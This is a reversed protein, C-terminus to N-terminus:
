AEDKKEGIPLQIHVRTGNNIESEIYLQGGHIKVIEDCISLGIGNKSKSNKGKYFKEKVKPLDEECIGCGNDEILIHVYSKEKKATLKVLGNEDVFKFANDLINILVQKIKNKDVNVIALPKEYEVLFEINKRYAISSMHTKIYEIIQEMHINERKITVQGSLLKSFDLLEEVMETLRESEKEIIHLGEKISEEDKVIGNNLLVAWGKIGTLPTRIEHSVSSIFDNKLREKKLIEGAMYNLTNSLKGIEDNYFIKARTEFDGESMKEASKTLEKIPEIITNSLFLSVIAGIVMVLVGIGIFIFSINKIILDVWKLSTVFRLVGVIENGSKLPHSIAMVKNSDYHVSGIYKGIEGSLAKEFDASNMSQNYAVGISDMLVKGKSDIIQVQADTQHWFVDVDDLVNEELSKSSFYKEYLSASVKIQNVLIDEVNGYYYKRVLGILLIEFIIVTVIIVIMFNSVMRRKISDKAM